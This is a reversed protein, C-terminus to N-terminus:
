RNPAMGFESLIPRIRRKKRCRSLTKFLEVRQQLHDKDYNFFTNARDKADHMLSKQQRQKSVSFLIHQLDYYYQIDNTDMRQGYGYCRQVHRILDLSVNQFELAQAITLTFNAREHPRCSKILVILQELKPDVEVSSLEPLLGVTGHDIFSQEWQKVKTRNINLQQAIYRQSKRKAWIQYLADYSMFFPEDEYAYPVSSQSLAMANRINYQILSFYKRTSDTFVMNDIDGLYYAFIHKIDIILIPSITRMFLSFHLSFKIFFSKKKVM